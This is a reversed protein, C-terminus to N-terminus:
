LPRSATTLPADTDPNAAADYGNTETGDINIRARMGTPVYYTSVASGSPM